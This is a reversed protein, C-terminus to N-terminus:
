MSVQRTGASSEESSGIETRTVDTEGGGGREGGEEGRFGVGAYM